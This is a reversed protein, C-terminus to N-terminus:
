EYIYFDKLLEDYSSYGYVCREDGKYILLDYNYVEKEEPCVIYVKGDPTNTHSDVPELWDLYYYTKGGDDSDLRHNTLKGSSYEVIGNGWYWNSCSYGERYGKEILTDVARRMDQTYNEKTYEYLNYTAIVSVYLMFITIIIYKKKSSIIINKYTCIISPFLFVYAPFFYRPYMYMDTFIFLLTLVSSATVWFLIMRKTEETQTKFNKIAVVTMVIFLFALINCVTGVSFINKGFQYSYCKLWANIIEEIRAFHIEGYLIDGGYAGTLSSIHFAKQLITINIVYGISSFFLTMISLVIRNYKEKKEKDIIVLSVVSSILLPIYCVLIHRIGGLGSILALVNILILIIINKKGRFSKFDLYMAVSLISIIIHPILYTGHVAFEFYERSLPLIMLMGVVPFYKKINLNLCLYYTSALLLIYLVGNGLVRVWKWNSIFKFLLSYVIQTNFVRIETSYRWNKTLLGGKKSLVHSLIMEASTDDNCTNMFFFYMYVMLGVVILALWIYSMLIILKEKKNNIKINKM